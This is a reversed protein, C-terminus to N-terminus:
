GLNQLITRPICNIVDSPLLSSEGVELKALDGAYGHLYVALKGSTGTQYGQSLFAGIMGTLVDGMGGTAMGPNGTFNYYLKQNPSALVSYPGKLLVHCNYQNSFQILKDNRVKTDEWQGVLARFEGEHPTLICNQHLLHCLEQDKALYFLADADLVCPKNSMLLDQIMRSCDKKRGLGPGIAVADYKSLDPCQNPYHDDQDSLFMSEPVSSQIIQMASAASYATTLGAGSRLCAKLSLILAGYKGYSGGIILVKGVSGKHAFPSRLKWNTLFDKQQIAHASIHEEKLKLFHFGINLIHWTGVFAIHEQFLFSLKPFEFSLTHHAQVVAKSESVVNEMELGSPMDVALTNFFKERDNLMDIALKYYTRMPGKFGIGFLADVGIELSRDTKLDNLCDYTLLPVGANHAAIQNLHNDKSFESKESVLIVRVQFGQKKLLRALVLGDGGNNGPGCFITYKFRPSNYISKTKRLLSMGAREMLRLSSIGDLSMTQHEIAKIGL